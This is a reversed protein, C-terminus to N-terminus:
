QGGPPRRGRRGRLCPCDKGAAAPKLVSEGGGGSFVGLADQNQAVDTSAGPTFDAKRVKGVVSLGDSQVPVLSACIIV